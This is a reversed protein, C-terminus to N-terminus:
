FNAKLWIYVLGDREDHMLFYHDGDGGRQDAVFGASRYYRADAARRPQWWCPPQRWFSRPVNEVSDVTQLELKQVLRSVARPDAELRWLYEGDIFSGLDYVYVNSVLGREEGLVHELQYPLPDPQPPWDIYRVYLVVGFGAVVAALVLLLPRKM